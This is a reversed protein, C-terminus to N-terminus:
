ATLSDSAAYVHGLRHLPKKQPRGQNRIARQRWCNLIPHTCEECTVSTENCEILAGPDAVTQVEILAQSRREGICIAPVVDERNGICPLEQGKLWVMGCIGLDAYYDRFFLMRRRLQSQM